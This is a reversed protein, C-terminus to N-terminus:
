IGVHLLNILFVHSCTNWLEGDIIHEDDRLVGLISLGDCVASVCYM